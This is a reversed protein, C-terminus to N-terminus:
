STFNLLMARLRFSSIGRMLVSSRRERLKRATSSSASSVGCSAFIALSLTPALVTSHRSRLSMRLSYAWFISYRAGTCSPLVPFHMGAVPQAIDRARFHVATFDNGHILLQVRSLGLIESALIHFHQGAHIQDSRVRLATADPGHITAAIPLFQQFGQQVALLAKDDARRPLAEHDVPLLDLATHGFQTGSASQPMLCSNDLNLVPLRLGVIQM